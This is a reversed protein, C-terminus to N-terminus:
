HHKLLRTFLNAWSHLCYNQDRLHTNASKAVRVEITTPPTFVVRDYAQMKHQLIEEISELDPQHLERRHLDHQAILRVRHLMLLILLYLLFERIAYQESGARQDKQM